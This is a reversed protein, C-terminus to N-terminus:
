FVANNRLVRMLVLRFGDLILYKLDEFLPYPLGFYRRRFNEETIGRM